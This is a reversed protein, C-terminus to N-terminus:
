KLITFKRNIKYLEYDVEKVKLKYENIFFIKLKSQGNKLNNVLDYYLLQRYNLLKDKLSVDKINLCTQKTDFVYKPIM